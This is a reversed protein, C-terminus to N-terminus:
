KKDKLQDELEKIIREYLEKNEERLNKYWKVMMQLGYLALVLAGLSGLVLELWNDRFGTQQINTVLNGLITGMSILILGFVYQIFDIKTGIVTQKNASQM